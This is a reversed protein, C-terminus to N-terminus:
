LLAHYHLPTDPILQRSQISHHTPQSAPEKNHQTKPVTTRYFKKHNDRQIYANANTHADAHADAYTQISTQYCSSTSPM